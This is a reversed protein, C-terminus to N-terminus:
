HRFSDIQALTLGPHCQRTAQHTTGRGTQYSYKNDIDLAESHKIGQGDMYGLDTPRASLARPLLFCLLPHHPIQLINNDRPCISPGRRQRSRPRCRSFTRNPRFTGASCNRETIVSLRRVYYPETAVYSQVKFARPGFQRLALLASRLFSMRTGFPLCCPTGPTLPRWSKSGRPHRESQPANITRIKTHVISGIRFSM